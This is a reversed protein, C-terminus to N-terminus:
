MMPDPKEPPFTFEGETGPADDEKEEKWDDGDFGTDDGDEDDDDTTTDDAAPGGPAEPSHHPAPVEEIEAHETDETEARTFYPSEIFLDQVEIITRM